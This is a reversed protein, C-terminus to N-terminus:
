DPGVRDTVVTRVLGLRLRIFGVLKGAGLDLQLSRKLPGIWYRHTKRHNAANLCFLRMGNISRHFAVYPNPSKKKNNVVALSHCQQVVVELRRMSSNHVIHFCVEGSVSVHQDSASVGWSSYASM